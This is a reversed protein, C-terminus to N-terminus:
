NTKRTYKIEWVTKWDEWGERIGQWRWIFSDPKIDTFVMRYRSGREDKEPIEFIRKDEEIVGVFNYYGGQNDAWAQHWKKTSPNYVSISTGKFGRTPDIFHEQIIKEDLIKVIKNSGKVTTSDQGLWSVEWDGIWFDFASKDDIITQGQINFSFTMFMILVYQFKKM